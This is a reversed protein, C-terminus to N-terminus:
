VPIGYQKALPELLDYEVPNLLNLENIIMKDYKGVRSGVAMLKKLLEVDVSNFLSRYVISWCSDAATQITASDSETYFREMSEYKAKLGDRVESLTEVELRARYKRNAFDKIDEIAISDNALDFDKLLSQIGAIETNLEKIQTGLNDLEIRHAKKESVAKAHDAIALALRDAEVKADAAAATDVILKSATM